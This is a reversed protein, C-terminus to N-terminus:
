AIACHNGGAELDALVQGEYSGKRNIGAITLYNPPTPPLKSSTYNVFEAETIKTANVRTRVVKISDGILKGDFAITNSTHAPLVIINDNLSLLRNLSSYLAKAKEIGEAADAKLDPRGISDVFLTDGTFIATNGLKFTTSEWTHGPTHIVELQATGVNILEGNSVASFPFEVKAKGIMLHKAGTAIALDRTRSVYDAHVHTDTVYKIKWGNDEAIKQYVKPELAADIVIAEDKSGVVYSLVGKVARRVQIIEVGEVSLEATNWAYNWAKMGGELSYAHVGKRQLLKSALLSTRGAACVTVVTSDHPLDVIDLATEDGANLQKYADVHVSDAIKWEKRQDEPRVDLIFVNEHKSLKEQLEKVTIIDEMICNKKFNIAVDLLV